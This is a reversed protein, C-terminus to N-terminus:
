AICGHRPRCLRCRSGRYALVGSEGVRRTPPDLRSFASGRPDPLDWCDNVLHLYGLENFRSVLSKKGAKCDAAIGEDLAWDRKLTVHYLLRLAAAITCRSDPALNRENTLHLQYAQTQQPGLAEPSQRYYRAFTVLRGFPAATAGSLTGPRNAFFLERHACM